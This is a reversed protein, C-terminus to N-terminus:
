ERLRAGFWLMRLGCSAALREVASIAPLNITPFSEVIQSPSVGSELLELVQEVSIRSGRIRLKGQLVDPTQEFWEQLGGPIDSLTM